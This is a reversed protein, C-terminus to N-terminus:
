HALKEVESKGLFGALKDRIDKKIKQAAADGLSTLVDRNQCRGGSWAVGEFRWKIWQVASPVGTLLLAAHEASVDRIYEIRAGGACYFDYLADTDSIPSIQDQVGKYMFVPISAPIPRQGMANANTVALVEPDSFFLDESTFYDALVDQGLFSLLNAGLCQTHAKNFYEAKNSLLNESVKAAINPYENALGIIGGPVLGAFPSATLYPLATTINPVAGGLAVGILQSLLEPAYTSALEAAFSSVLSGGSYGWMAVKADPDVLGSSFTARIGDLVHQGGRVNALFAANPGEHDPITVIWGEALAAGIALIEIQTGVTGFPGSSSSLAQFAYSPACNLSASDQAVQYSLLKSPSPNTLPVLVTTVTSSPNGFSDTSRYLIQHASKLPVPLIGLAAILSPPNRIALITGPATSEYGAPPTYFPDNTPPTVLQRTSLPSATVLASFSLLVSIMFKM